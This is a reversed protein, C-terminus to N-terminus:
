RSEGVGTGGEMGKVSGKGKLGRVGGGDGKVNEKGASAGAAMAMM